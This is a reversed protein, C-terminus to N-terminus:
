PDIYEIENIITFVKSEDLWTGDKNKIQMFGENSIINQKTDFKYVTRTIRNELQDVFEITNNKITSLDLRQKVIQDERRVKRKGNPKIQITTVLNKDLNYEFSDITGSPKSGEFRYATKTYVIKNISHDDNYYYNTQDLITDSETKSTSKILNGTSDYDYYIHMVEPIKLELDPTQVIISKSFNAFINDAFFEQSSTLKGKWYQSTKKIRALTDLEIITVSTDTCIFNDVTYVNIKKINLSDKYPIPDNITPQSQIQAMPFIILLVLISKYM